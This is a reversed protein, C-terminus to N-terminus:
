WRGRKDTAKRLREERRVEGEKIREMMSQAKTKVGKGRKNKTKKRGEEAGGAEGEGKDAM